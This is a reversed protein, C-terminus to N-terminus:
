ETEVTNKELLWKFVKDETVSREIEPLRGAKQLSAYVQGPDANRKKATEAVRDDIEAETAALGERQALSDIVMDRRVQREAMPRFEEAFREREEEPVQYAQAYAETLQKVWTAPVDFPNAGIIEDLLHQRVSSEAEREAHRELDGRVAATLADLSDFDGVERALADDLEPVTKRKVDTLTVRVTKTQSRQAEDPFDDPWKVPREVTQGPTAEMILEEIGAIAQGSGLVLRYERGEPITGTEDATSLLVTVQDGPAPRDAAPAWTARQDRIQEIQERVQDDTVTGAPRRVRFGHVRSLEIEPRVEVHLEFTLPAGDDFKLDHVHPQAIPKLKERELVERYADQVLAEIAEQRIADAFRKKVMAAPAKGPRFGPLRVQSAYRRAAKDEAARVTEVPVSVQLLRESGESKKTSIEIDM